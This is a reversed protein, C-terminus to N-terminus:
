QRQVFWDFEGTMVITEEVDRLTMTVTIGARGKREFQSLFKEQKEMSVSSLAYVTSTAPARYKVSAGRLLPLVGESAYESFLQQLYLGSQTEALAFLAAAHM